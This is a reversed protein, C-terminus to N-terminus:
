DQLPQYTPTVLHGQKPSFTLILFAAKRM